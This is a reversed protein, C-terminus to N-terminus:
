GCDEGHPALDPVGAGTVEGLAAAGRQIPDLVASRGANNCAVRQRVM